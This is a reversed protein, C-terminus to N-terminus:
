TDFTLSIAFNVLGPENPDMQDIRRQLANVEQEIGVARKLSEKCSRRDRVSALDTSGLGVEIEDMKRAIDAVVKGRNLEAEASRLTEMKVTSLEALEEWEKNVGRVLDDVDQAYEPSNKKLKDGTRNVTKLRTENARLEGAFAECKKLNKEVHLNSQLESVLKKKDCIWRLLDNVDERFEHFRLSKFLDNKRATALSKIKDRKEVALECKRKINSRDYHGAAILKDGMSSFLTLRDDQASLTNEFDTHRRILQEVQDLDGGVSGNQLFQLHLQSQSDIHDAERLFMMLDLRQQLLDGRENYLLLIAEKKDLQEVDVNQGHKILSLGLEKVEDFEDERARIEEGLDAHSKLDTEATNVDKSTIEQKLSLSCSELFNMLGAASKNYIERGVATELRNKKEVAKQKLKEFLKEFKDRETSVNKRESPYATLVDNALLRCREVREEIPQLERELNEHRRQLAQVTKLDTLLDINDFQDMKELIWENLEECNKLFLSVTSAGELSRERMSKLNILNDYLLNIQSRRSKVKDSQSSQKLEEATKDILDKRKTSASLDTLFKEFKKKAETVNSGDDEKLQSEKEKIWREFDDCERTFRYYRIWEELQDTRSQPCNNKM